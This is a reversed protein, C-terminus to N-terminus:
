SNRGPKRRRRDTVKWADARGDVKITQSIMDVTLAVPGPLDITLVDDPGLTIRRRNATQRRVHTPDTM